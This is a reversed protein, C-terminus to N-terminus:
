AVKRQDERQVQETRRLGKVVRCITSPSLNLATAIDKQLMGQVLLEAVEDTLDQQERVLRCVGAEKDHEILVVFEDPSRFGRTKTFEVTFRGWEDLKKFLLLSANLIDERKSTGRQDGRGDKRKPKGTHHVLLVAKDARRLAVLWQQMTGWSEADNEVGSHCLTSMNDLVLVEADGLADEILRRGRPNDPDSLDPMGLEQDAHSLIRLNDEALSPDGNGDLEAARHTHNLIAQVEAPDMEADVYLVKRPKPVEFGLFDGGTAIAYAMALGFYTKGTGRWAAVMAIGRKPFWPKIVHEVPPYSYTLFEGLPRVILAEPRNPKDNM